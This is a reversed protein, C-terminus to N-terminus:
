RFINELCQRHVQPDFQDLTTSPLNSHHLNLNKERLGTFLTVYHGEMTSSTVLSQWGSDRKVFDFLFETYLINKFSHAIITFFYSVVFNSLMKNVTTISNLDGDDPRNPHVTLRGNHHNTIDQLPHSDTTPGISNGGTHLYHSGIDSHSLDKQNNENNKSKRATTAQAKHSMLNKKQLSAKVHIVAVPPTSASAQLNSLRSATSLYRSIGHCTNGRSASDVSFFPNQCTCRSPEKTPSDAPTVTKQNFALDLSTPYQSLRWEFTGCLFRITATITTPYVNRKTSRLLQKHQITSPRPKMRSIAHIISDLM